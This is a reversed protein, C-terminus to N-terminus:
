KEGLRREIAKAHADLGEARAIIAAPPGLKQLTSADINIVSTYKMFDSVNLPSSFRATGGTPLAHSPGAIYDGLVVTAKSGIVICGANKIEKIYEDPNAVMLCLHEPAYLNALAVAQELNSVIAIIGRELPLIVIEQRTLEAAQRSIERNLSDALRSSNTIFTVSALPDHEAQALIDAACFEADASEDAIIMVESPGQLGDIAVTGFVQKKALMVFINGPGCIKDVAPVTETGFAMAAVAQAGGVCFIRDVRAIDAAVLTVAPVKGDKGPPTTLVVENVGAARAPIGTMLVTSPYAATGGPVYVGVRTLPRILQGAEKGTIEHWLNDRQKRHFSEIRRAAEQLGSVLERDVERYADAVEKKRVELSKLEIGDIQRTLDVLAADGERRVRDIIRSVAREPDDTGFLKQLGQRMVASVPYTNVPIARSLMKKATAFDKVTKM